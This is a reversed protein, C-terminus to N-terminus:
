PPVCDSICRSMASEAASVDSCSFSPTETSEEDMDKSLMMLAMATICSCMPMAPFACFSVSWVMSPDMFAVFAAHDFRSASNPM